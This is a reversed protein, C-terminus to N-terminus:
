MIAPLSPVLPTAVVLFDNARLGPKNDFTALQVQGVGGKGDADYFLTGKKQNYIFRDNGDKAKNGLVFQ